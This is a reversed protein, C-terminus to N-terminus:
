LMARPSPGCRERVTAHLARAFAAKEEPSRSREYAAGGFFRSGGSLGQLFAEREESGEPKADPTENADFLSPDKQYLSGWDLFVGMERFGYSRCLRLLGRSGVQKLKSCLM